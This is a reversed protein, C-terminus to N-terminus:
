TNLILKETPISVTINEMDWNSFLFLTHAGTKGVSPHQLGQEQQTWWDTLITFTLGVTSLSPKYGEKWYYLVVSPQPSLLLHLVWKSPPHFPVDQSMWEWVRYPSLPSMQPSQLLESKHQQTHKLKWLKLLDPKEINKFWGANGSSSSLGASCAIRPPAWFSTINANPTAAANIVIQFM